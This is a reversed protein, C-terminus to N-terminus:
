IGCSPVRSDFLRRKREANWRGIIPEGALNVVADAADVAAQFGSGSDLITAETGLVSKAKAPNRTLATVTHGERRLRLVM